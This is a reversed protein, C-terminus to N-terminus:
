AASSDAEPQWKSVIMDGRQQIDMILAGLERSVAEADVAPEAELARAAGSYMVAAGGAGAIAIPTQSGGKSSVALSMTKRIAYWVACIIAYIGVLFSALLGIEASGSSGMGFSLIGLGGISLFCIASAAACVTRLINRREILVGGVLLALAVLWNLADTDSGSSMGVASLLALIAGVFGGALLGLLLAGIFHMISFRSGKFVSIGSVDEIPVESHILSDGSTAQFVVRRNTVELYGESAIGLLKSRFSTCHYTKVCQEGEAPTLNKSLIM